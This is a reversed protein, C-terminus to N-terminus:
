GCRITQHSTAESSSDYYVISSNAVCKARHGYLKHTCCSDLRHNIKSTNSFCLNFATREARRAYLKHARRANTCIPPKQM